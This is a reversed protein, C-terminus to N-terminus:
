PKYVEPEKLLGQELKEQYTPGYFSFHEEQDLYRSESVFFDMLRRLISESPGNLYISIKNDVTTLPDQESHDKIPSPLSPRPLIGEKVLEKKLEEEEVNIQEEKLKKLIANELRKPELNKGETGEKGWAALLGYITGTLYGQKGYAREGEQMSEILGYTLTAKSLYERILAYHKVSHLRELIAMGINAQIKNGQIYKEMPFDIYSQNYANQAYMNRNLAHFATNDSTVLTEFLLEGLTYANGESFYATVKGAGPEYDEEKMEVVDTLRREGREIRDMLGMAFATKVTSAATMMKDEQHSFIKENNKTWVVTIDNESLGLTHVLDIFRKFVDKKYNEKALQREKLITQITEVKKAEEAEKQAQVISEELYVAQISEELALSQELYLAQHKQYASFIFFAVGIVVLVLSLSVSFLLIKNKKLM